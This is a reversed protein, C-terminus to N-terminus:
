SEVSSLQRFSAHPSQKVSLALLAAFPTPLPPRASRPSSPVAGVGAGAPECGRARPARVRAACKNHEHQVEKSDAAPQAESKGDDGGAQYSM